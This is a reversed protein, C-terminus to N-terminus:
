YPEEEVILFVLVDYEVDSQGADTYSVRVLDNGADVAVPLLRNSPSVQVLEADQGLADFGNIASSDDLLFAESQDTIGVQYVQEQLFVNSDDHSRLTIEGLNTAMNNLILPLAVWTTM